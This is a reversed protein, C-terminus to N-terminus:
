PVPGKVPFDGRPLVGTSSLLPETSHRFLATRQQPKKPTFGTSMRYAAIRLQLTEIAAFQNVFTQPSLAHRYGALEPDSQPDHQPVLNVVFLETTASLLVLTTCGTRPHKFDPITRVTVSRNILRGARGPYGPLESLEDHDTLVSSINPPCCWLSSTVPSLTYPPCLASISSPLLDM